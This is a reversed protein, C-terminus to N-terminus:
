VRQSLIFRHFVFAYALASLYALLTGVVIGFAPVILFFLVGFIVNGISGHPMTKAVSSTFDIGYRRDLIVLSSSFAAPFGAFMGGWLPGLIKTLLVVLCVIGGTSVIRLAVETKTLTISALKRDPFNRLYVIACTFFIAALAVSLTISKISSAVLPLTLCAWILLGGALAIIRGWRRLYIFGVIFLNNAAISAPIIPMARVAVDTGQSWAIFLISILLSGPLGILLGGIRSGFKESVWIAFAIYSGGILFSLLLKIFFQIEM